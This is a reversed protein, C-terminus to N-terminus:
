YANAKRNRACLWKRKKLQRVVVVDDGNDDAHMNDDM